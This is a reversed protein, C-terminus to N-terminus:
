TEERGKMRELEAQAENRERIADDLMMQGLNTDEGHAKRAAELEATRQALDAHLQEIQKMHEHRENIYTRNDAQLAAITAQADTLQQQIHKASEFLGNYDLRQTQEM